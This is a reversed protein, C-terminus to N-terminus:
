CNDPYVRNLNRKIRNHTKPTAELPIINGDFFDHRVQSKEELAIYEEFTYIKGSSKKLL